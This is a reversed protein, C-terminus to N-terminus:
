LSFVTTHRWWRRQGRTAGVKWSKRSFNELSELIERRMRETKTKRIVHLSSCLGCVWYSRRAVLIYGLATSEIIEKVWYYCCPQRGYRHRPLPILPVDKQTRCHLVTLVDQFFPFFYAPRAFPTSNHSACHRYPLHWVIQRYGATQHLHIVSRM